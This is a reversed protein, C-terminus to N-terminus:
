EAGVPVFSRLLRARGQAAYEGLAAPLVASAGSELEVLGSEHEIQVSGSVVTLIEFSSPSTALALEGTVDIEELAFHECEMLLRHREDVPLPTRRATEGGRLDAVSLAKEVHLERPRGEADTRGYDYLRYTIDSAQQIEYLFVGAGIAHITGPPNYVVDGPAIPVENVLEELTGREVAQRMEGASTDRRLGWVIRAGPEADLIYWAEAKGLHGSDPELRSAQEDDPHVQISLPKAADILKALLPFAKGYRSLPETGLLAAGARHSVEALTSGAHPGNRIRNEAYVQWAEAFPEGEGPPTLGLFGALRTGGWLRRSMQRELLLPYPEFM